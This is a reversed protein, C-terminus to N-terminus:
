GHPVDHEPTPATDAATAAILKAALARLAAVPTDGYAVVRYDAHAFASAYTHDLGGELRVIWGEPLAAEAEAWADDLSDPEPAEPKPWL